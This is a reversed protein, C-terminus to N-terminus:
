SGTASNARMPTSVGEQGALAQGQNRHVILRWYPRQSVYGAHSTSGLPTESWSRRLADPKRLRLRKGVILQHAPTRSPKAERHRQACGVSPM